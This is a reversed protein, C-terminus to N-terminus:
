EVSSSMENQFGKLTKDVDSFILMMNADHDQYTQDLLMDLYNQWDALYGELAELKKKEYSDMELLQYTNNVQEMLLLVSEWFAVIFADSDMGFLPAYAHKSLTKLSEVLEMPTKKLSDDDVFDSSPPFAAFLGCEDVVRFLLAKSEQVMLLLHHYDEPPEALAVYQTGKAPTEVYKLAPQRM